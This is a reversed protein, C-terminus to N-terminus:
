SVQLSHTGDGPREVVPFDGDTVSLYYFIRHKYENLLIPKQPEVMRQSLRLCVPNLREITSRIDIGTEEFLERACGRKSATTMQTCYDESYKAIVFLIM